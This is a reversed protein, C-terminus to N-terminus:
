LTLKLSANVVRGDIPGWLERFQPHTINGTYLAERRGQQYDLLNEGNLVLALHKGFKKEIMAAIFVYGPTCSYDLRHQKGNYSGEIGFRFGEEEFDKVLTMAMRNRSTLTVDKNVPRYTEEAITFTYGFYLEWEDVMARVYTDFGKSIVPKRMNEFTVYGSVDEIALQPKSITTLFFAHNIFFENGGGWTTKYNLEANYGTSREAQASAPIPLIHDLPYEVQQPALPDPTKYGFGVGARGAWHTDFRHFYAVRPLLFNGYRDHQDDRLGAELTNNDTIKWTSQVFAGITNNSFNLPDTVHLSEFKNGTANIGAVLSIKKRNLIYSLESYYDLQKANFQYESGSIDRRFNSLSNRFVLQKGASLNSTISFEGSSRNVSNKEIYQHLADPKGDLVLMDGGERREFTGTYGLVITTKSTPYFFLRPHIVIGKLFSVDSFGDKNVDQPQQQNYGAFFTYGAHLFKHSLYADLNTEALTSRNVLFVAEPSTHPTRSIINVLGSIAGGGYLTSVAGKVLEIQKIDLPPISLIGFGGSFGGYLPLGDRLIQTYRGDLGQIRVNSNNNVASTQQIQVGSVDGLISAIGGPKIGTEEEMEERGLVEVKLPSNEVRQNNRTTSIVTVEDLQRERTSLNLILVDPYPLTVSLSTDEYGIAAINLRYSGGPLAILAYGSSDSLWTKKGAIITTGPIGQGHHGVFIRLTDTQANSVEPVALIFFGVLFTYLFIIKM